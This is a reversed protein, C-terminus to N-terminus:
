LWFATQISQGNFERYANRNDCILQQIAKYTNVSNNYRSFIMSGEGPVVASNEGLPRVNGAVTTQNTKDAMYHFYVFGCVMEIMGESIILQCVNRDKEFPAWIDVYEQSQPVGAVLDAVFLNYLDAGLMEILYRKEYRDIYLQIEGATYIGQHLEYKGKGFNAITIGLVSM